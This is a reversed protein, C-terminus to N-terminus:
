LHHVQVPIYSLLNATKTMWSSTAVRSNGPRLMMNEEGLVEDMVARWSPFQGSFLFM